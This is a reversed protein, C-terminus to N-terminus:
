GDSTPPLFADLTMTSTKIAMETQVTEHVLHRALWGIGIGLLFYIILNILAVQMGSILDVKLLCAKMLTVVVAILACRYGFQLTM